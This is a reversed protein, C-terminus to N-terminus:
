LSNMILWERYANDDRIAQLGSQYDYLSFMHELIWNLYSHRLLDPSSRIERAAQHFQRETEFQKKARAARQYLAQRDPPQETVPLRLGARQLAENAQTRTLPLTM